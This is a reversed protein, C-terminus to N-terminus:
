WHLGDLADVLGGRSKLKQIEESASLESDWWKKELMKVVAMDHTITRKFLYDLFEMKNKPNTMSANKEGPTNM